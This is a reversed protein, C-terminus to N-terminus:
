QYEGVIRNTHYWMSGEYRQVKKRNVSILTANHNFPSASMNSTLVCDFLTNSGRKKNGYKIGLEGNATLYVYDDVFQNRYAGGYIDLSKRIKHPSYPYHDHIHYISTYEELDGNYGICFLFFRNKEADDSLIVRGQKRVKEYRYPADSYSGYFQYEEKPNEAVYRNYEEKTYEHRIIDMFTVEISNETNMLGEIENCIADMRDQTSQKAYDYEKRFKEALDNRETLLAFIQKDM